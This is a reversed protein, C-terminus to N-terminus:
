APTTCASRTNRLFSVRMSVLWCGAGTAQDRAVSAGHEAFPPDIRGQELL